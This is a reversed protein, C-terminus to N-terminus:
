VPAGDAGEASLCVGYGDCHHEADDCQECVCCDVVDGLQAVGAAIVDVPAHPFFRFRGHLHCPM